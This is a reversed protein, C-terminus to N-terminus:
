ATGPNRSSRQPYAPAVPKVAELAFAVLDNHSVVDEGVLHVTLLGSFGPL